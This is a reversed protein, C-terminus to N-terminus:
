PVSVEARKNNEIWMSKGKSVLESQMNMITRHIFDVRRDNKDDLKDLITKDFIFLPMVKHGNQKAQYLAHYLGVNDEFRLDRRFWFILVTDKM